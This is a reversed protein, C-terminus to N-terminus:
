KVGGSTGLLAVLHGGASSGWAGFRDPNLNYKKVHARLWRVAAKCDEIQAPFKADGSLRYDLSAVAYGRRALRLAPLNGGKTGQRWGGGHIWIVLPLPGDSKPLYLDLKQRAHGGSVYALDRLTKMTEAAEPSQREGRDGRGSQGGM